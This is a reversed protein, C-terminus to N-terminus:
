IKWNRIESCNHGQSTIKKEEVISMSCCTLFIVSRKVNGSNLMANLELAFPPKKEQPEDWTPDSYKLEDREAM